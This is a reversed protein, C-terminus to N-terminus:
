FINLMTQMTERAVPLSGSDYHVIPQHSERALRAARIGDRFTDFSTFAAMHAQAIGMHATVPLVIPEAADARAISQDSYPEDLSVWHPLHGLM